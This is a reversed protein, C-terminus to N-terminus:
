NWLVVKAFPCTKVFCGWGLQFKHFGGTTDSFRHFAEELEDIEEQTFGNKAQVGRTCSLSSVLWSIACMSLLWLLSLSLSLLLLLM